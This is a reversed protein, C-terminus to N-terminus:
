RIPFRSREHILAALWAELEVLARDDANRGVPDVGALLQRMLPPPEADAAGLAELLADFDVPRDPM